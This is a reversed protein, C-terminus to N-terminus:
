RAKFPTNLSAPLCKPSGAQPDIDNMKVTVILSYMVAARESGRDSGCFMWSRRGLTIGRVARQQTIRYASEVMTSSGPTRAIAV